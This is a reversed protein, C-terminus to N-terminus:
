YLSQTPWLLKDSVYLLLVVYRKTYMHMNQFSVLVIFFAASSDSNTDFITFVILSFCISM